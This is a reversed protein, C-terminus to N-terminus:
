LILEVFRRIIYGFDHPNEFLYDAFDLWLIKESPQPHPEGM